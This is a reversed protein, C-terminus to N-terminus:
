EGKLYEEFWKVVAAMDIKQPLNSGFGPRRSVKWLTDAWSSRPLVDPEAFQHCHSCLERLQAEDVSPVTTPINQEGTGPDSWHGAVYVCAAIGGAVGAVLLGSVALRMRM